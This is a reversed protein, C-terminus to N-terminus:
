ESLAELMRKRLARFHSVSTNYSNYSQIMEDAFSRALFPDRKEIMKLLAYDNIGDRMASLRISPYVKLHGPYVIYADGGPWDNAASSVEKMPDGSEGWYNFGWHLYGGANYKFNLWHLIRTKILPLEVFRNAFEERPYMCTYFWIEQEPTTHKYIENGLEDLQPVLVDILDPNFDDCRYAEIIRLGPANAKARRALSEWQARNAEVPEDAIHQVFIDFWSRGSGDELQHSSMNEKLQSFYSTLFIDARPDDVPLMQLAYGGKEDFVPVEVGIPATWGPKLRGGIAMSELHRVKVHSLIFSIYKNMDTFDWDISKGDASLSPKAQVNTTWVNQGFDEGTKIVSELCKWYEPTDFEVPNGNNMFPFKVPFYWNTVTLPRDTIDVPYVQIAFSHDFAVKRGNRKGDIRVTCKYVGKDAKAPVPIDVWLVAPRSPGATWVTDTLIPDPFLGTSSHLIDSAAPKYPHSSTVYGVWGFTAEAPFKGRKSKMNRLSATLDTLSDTSSIVLQAVAHEGRAVRITDGDNSIPSEDPLVKVLPDVQKVCIGKESKVFSVPLILIVFFLLLYKYPNMNM